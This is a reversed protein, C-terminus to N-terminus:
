SVAARGGTSYHRIIAEALGPITYVEAICTPALGIECVTEATVPSIVGVDVGKLLEFFEEDGFMGRFNLATSSSTFTVMDISRKKFLERVEDTRSAPCITEYVPIVDVKAGRKTLEDPLVDRAVKARPILFCRGALNEGSLADVVAEARYQAPLVDVNVHCSRIAEATAPGIACTRTSALARVDKGAAELRELFAWWGNVSTLVIWDYEDLRGIAADIEAYDALPAIEITPFEICRAGYAELLVRFDSAQARARTVLITKGFLPRTEFWNLRDRLRVVEGVVTIAPAQIGADAVIKTITELTGTVTRQYPRTGWQIVAVPTEADRGAEILRRTIEPLNKVGMLFVITGIGGALAKWDISSAEKTPDEHGTVFAVTSTFDRHTLPIGAYCSAGIPSTVGPVVEFPVGADVCAEAEEGGRGFIYPDGGKLRAVIKGALAKEVLLRNIGDQSLTHDGGKKGVYIIEADLRAHGLLSEDALYDYLVVDARKLCEVGKVTMLGPDGPGAGILFVKGTM